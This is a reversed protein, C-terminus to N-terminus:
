HIYGAVLRVSPEMWQLSAWVAGTALASMVACRYSYGIQVPPPPAPSFMYDSRAMQYLLPKAADEHGVSAIASYGKRTVPDVLSVRSSIADIPQVVVRLAAAHTDWSVRSYQGTM